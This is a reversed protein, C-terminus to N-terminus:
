NCDRCSVQLNDESDSGCTSGNSPVVHAREYNNIHLEKHCVQCHGHETMGMRKIWFNNRDPMRKRRLAAVQAAQDAEFRDTNDPVYIGSSDLRTFIANLRARNRTLGQMFPMNQTLPDLNSRIFEELDNIVAELKQQTALGVSVM